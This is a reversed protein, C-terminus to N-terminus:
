QKDRRMVPNSNGILGEEIKSQKGLVDYRPTQSVNNVLDAPSEHYGLKLLKIYNSKHPSAPPKKPSDTASNYNITKDAQRRNPSQVTSKTPRNTKQDGITKKRPGPGEETALKALASKTMKDYM